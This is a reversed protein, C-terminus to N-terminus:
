QDSGQIDFGMLKKIKNSQEMSTLIELLKFAVDIATSPNWSTIINGDFVVPQNIVDVGFERLQNQRKGGDLNYTTGKRNNLVGSKGIPLAAVCISAITRNKLHFTRILNIFESDYADHYFGYAEFGGPIALAAFDDPNIENILYDVQVSVNFTSKVEKRLGCTYLQTSGDGEVLNWGIVDIFVSAEYTEFGDALLLLIKKM